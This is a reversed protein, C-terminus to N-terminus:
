SLSKLAKMPKQKPLHKRLPAQARAFFLTAAAASGLLLHRM